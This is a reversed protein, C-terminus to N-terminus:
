FIYIFSDFFLIFELYVEEYYTKKNTDGFLYLLLILKEIKFNLGFSTIIIIM